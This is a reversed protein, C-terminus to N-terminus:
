CARFPMGVEVVEDTDAAHDFDAFYVERPSGAVEHHREAVWQEIADYASLIQPFGVQARRVRVYAERHAPLLRDASGPGVPVCVEVPGDSDQNVEGHYVAFMPGCTGGREAATALLRNAAAGLWTPLDVVSVRRRESVVAQEPVDRTRVADFMAPRDAGGSLRARLHEALERQVAVRRETDIWHDRVLRAAAAGDEATVVRAVDALPMDLRRLMAVLRATALQREDYRRYGSHEDVRDPVLVGLREYLRLAKVSLHARRAFVGISLLRGTGHGARWRGSLLAAVDEGDM